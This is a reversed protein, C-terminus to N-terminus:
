LLLDDGDEQPPLYRGVEPRRMSPATGKPFRGGKIKAWRDNRPRNEQLNERGQRVPGADVGWTRWGSGASRSASITAERQHGVGQNDDAIFTAKKGKRNKEEEDGDRSEIWVGGGVSLDDEDFDADRVSSSPAATSYADEGLSNSTQGALVTSGATSETSITAQDDLEHDAWPDLDLQDQVCNCCRARDPDHRQNKAFETLPKTKLCVICALETPPGGVCTRCRIPCGIIGEQGKRVIAQRLRNLQSNSFAAQMRNKHCAACKIKDPLKVQKLRDVFDSDFPVM